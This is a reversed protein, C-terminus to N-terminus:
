LRYLRNSTDLIREKLELSEMWKKELSTMGWRAGMLSGCVSGTSDSDGSHNVALRIGQTFTEATRAAYWAMALAEEAVWGKGLSEVIEYKPIIREDQALRDAELLAELTEQAEPYQKLHDITTMLATEMSNGLTLMAILMAFAGAALFGTPHGHTIAAAECAVYFAQSPDEYLFLGIPAVRMVGGCGKSQNLPIEMSGMKGSSLASICTNGPARRVHLKDEDLLRGHKEFSQKDLIKIDVGNPLQRTQTYYWRMYSPYIGKSAYSDVGKYSGLYYAWLLGEATFLSMQTDDSILAKKSERDLIYHCLGQTGHSDRIKGISEFEIPYGLADGIAGGLMTAKFKSEIENM